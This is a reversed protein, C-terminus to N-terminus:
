CYPLLRHKIACELRTGSLSRNIRRQAHIVSCALAQAAAAAAAKVGERLHRSKHRDTQGDTHLGTLGSTDTIHNRDKCTTVRTAVAAPSSPLITAAANGSQKKMWVRTVRIVACFGPLHLISNSAFIALYGSGHTFNWNVSFNLFFILTQTYIVKAM